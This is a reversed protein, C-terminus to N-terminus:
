KKIQTLEESCFQISHIHAAFVPAYANTFYHLVNSFVTDFLYALWTLESLCHKWQLSLTQYTAYLSSSHQTIAIKLNNWRFTLQRWQLSTYFRYVKWYLLVPILKSFFLPNMQYIRKKKSVNANSRDLLLSFESELKLSLVIQVVYVTQLGKIESALVKLRWM